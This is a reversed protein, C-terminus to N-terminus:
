ASIKPLHVREKSFHIGFLQQIKCKGWSGLFDQKMGAPRKDEELSHKLIGEHFIGEDVWEVPSLLQELLQAAKGTVESERRGMEV